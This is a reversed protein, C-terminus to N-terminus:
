ICFCFSLKHTKNTLTAYMAGQYSVRYANGQSASTRTWWDTNDKVLISYVKQKDTAPSSVYKEYVEGERVNNNYNTTFTGGVENVSLPFVKCKWNETGTGYENACIKTVEKAVAQIDSPLFTIITNTYLNKLPSDAFAMLSSGDGWKQASYNSMVGKLAITIGAKGSGDALNDHNFGIIELTDTETSGNDYTLTIPRTDGVKFVNAANGSEAIEAIEAWTATEFAAKKAWTATYSAEGTVNALAPTWGAFDYGDKTPTYSPMAGYALSESKLLTEGDYYSITYRRTEARFAAYVTRDETVAKLANASYTGITSNATDAWGIHFYNYQTTSEKTPSDFVGRAIPDACDDGVAVAKKGLEVTGDYSMFTVYRVDESAGSGILAVIERTRAPFDVPSMKGIDGLGERIADAQDQFLNKLANAM